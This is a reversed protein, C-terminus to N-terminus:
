NRKLFHKFADSTPSDIQTSPSDIQVVEKKHSDNKAKHSDSKNWHRQVTSRGLGSVRIINAETIMQKNCQLIIIAKSIAELSQKKLETNHM